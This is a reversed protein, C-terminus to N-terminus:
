PIACPCPVCVRRRPKALLRVQGTSSSVCRCRVESGRRPSYCEEHFRRYRKKILCCSRGFYNDDSLDGDSENAFALEVPVGAAKLGRHLAHDLIGGGHALSGMRLPENQDLRELLRISRETTARDHHHVRIEISGPRIVVRVREAKGFASVLAEGSVDIVPLEQDGRKRRSVKRDGAPTFRLTIGGHPGNERDLSQLEFQQGPSIGARALRRGELWLRKTGKREGLTTYIVTTAM